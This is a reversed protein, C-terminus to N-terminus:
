SLGHSKCLPCLPWMEPIIYARSNISPPLASMLRRPCNRRTLLVHCLNKFNLDACSPKPSSVLPLSLCIVIVHVFNSPNSPLPQSFHIDLLFQLVHEALLDFEPSQLLWGNQPNKFRVINPCCVSYLKSNLKLSYSVQIGNKAIIIIYKHSLRTNVVERM